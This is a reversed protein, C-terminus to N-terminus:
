LQNSSQQVYLQIASRGEVRVVSCPTSCIVLTTDASLDTIDYYKCTVVVGREWVANLNHSLRRNNIDTTNIELQGDGNFFGELFGGQYMVNDFQYSGIGNPFRIGNIEVTDGQYNSTDVVIPQSQGWACEPITRLITEITDLNDDSGPIISSNQM